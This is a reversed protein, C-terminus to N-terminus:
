LDGNVYIYNVNYTKNTTIPKVTTKVMLLKNGPFM